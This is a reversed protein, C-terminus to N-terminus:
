QEFKNLYTQYKNNQNKTQNKLNPKLKTKIIYNKIRNIKILNIKFKNNNYSDKM